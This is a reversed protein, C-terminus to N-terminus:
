LKEVTEQSLGTVETIESIPRGITKLKLAIELKENSKGELIGERLGEKLGKRLGKKEGERRADGMSSNWDLKHKWRREYLLKIDKDGSLYALQEEANLLTTDMTVVEEILEPPSSKDFWTLWRHLHDNVIDKKVLRRFKVMNLFHIELSETLILDKNKAERLQFVTHFDDTDLFNYNVINIAIVKPLEIYDQGEEINDIYERSWYYLSRKDMNHQNRIQVEVIVSTKDKLRARIDLECAKDSITEASFSKNELIEVSDYKDKESRGLVANIFSLLQEEKGKEGFLKYFLYDDLPNLRRAPKRSNNIKM